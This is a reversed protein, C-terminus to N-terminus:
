NQEGGELRQVGLTGRLGAIYWRANRPDRIVKYAQILLTRM